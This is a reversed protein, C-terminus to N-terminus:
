MDRGVTLKIGGPPFQEATQVDRIDLDLLEGEHFAAASHFFLTVVQEPEQPQLQIEKPGAALVSSRVGSTDTRLVDLSLVRGAEALLQMQGGGEVAPRPRLVVKAAARMLQYTPLVVEVGIRKDAVGRTRSILHPIILEQLSAGGHSFSKEAHFFAMGPPVAVRLTEDWLLPFTTVPLDAGAPVLAYREKRVRCWTPDCAVEEPLRSEDLLIFGHDTVVHVEPYGWRHLKRVLRVLREVEIEIHRILARADGHGIHDVDDHGSAVLLDGLGTPADHVSELEDIARCDAGTSRLFSLRNERVVMDSGDVRPHLANGKIEITVDAESILMLATMGVPTITPLPALVPHIEVDSERLVDRLAGACDYRLADVIIVARKGKAHWLTEELHATVPPVSPIDVAGEAVLAQMFGTNLTNAYAAYVRDAVAAVAPLEQTEAERRIVIHRWDVAPAADTYVGVYEALGSALDARTQATDCAGILAGLDRLLSWAGVPAQGAKAYEAEKAILYEHHEFFERTTSMKLAAEEFLGRTEEWRLRALHPFGFSVGQHQKAWSTLDVRSEARRILRDWAARGETDRLWRQLLEVHHQRLPGPPLRDAFPFDVPERYGLYTETLALMAALGEIWEAPSGLPAEYGYRGRVLDVFERDLGAEALGQWTAEPEAAVDLIIQDVDGILRSQALAPTLTTSWYDRPRDVFRAAYKSLLSDGGGDYLRRQETPNDTLSVGAQRLFTFLTPRKGDIRWTIGAVRYEALLDLPPGGDVGPRDLRDEALPLYLVFRLSSRLEPEVAQLARYVEYKLWVQGRNRDADYALLRFPPSTESALHAELAPVLRGFERREDFWLCVQARKEHQFRQVFQDVLAALIM